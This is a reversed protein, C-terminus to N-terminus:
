SPSSQPGGDLEGLVEDGHEGLAPAPHLRAACGDIRIPCAPIWIRGWAPHAHEVVMGSARLQPSALLETTDLVAGCPVGAGALREM